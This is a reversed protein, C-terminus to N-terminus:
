RCGGRGEELELRHRAEELTASEEVVREATPERASVERLLAIAECRREEGRDLLAEALFLPNRPDRDSHRLARGLLEIGLSRDIWGTVLPMRPTRSHLRGLLRLGGADAFSEDLEVVRSAHDRIHEAAGQLAATLRSVNLGWLGWAIAAWFHARAQAETSEGRALTVSEEALRRLEEYLARRRSRDTEVFEGEFYLAEMLKFRLGRGGDLALARRYAASAERARAAPVRGTEVFGEGRLEWARDGREEEREASREALREASREM